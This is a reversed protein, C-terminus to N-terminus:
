KRTFFSDLSSQIGKRRSGILKEIGKNVRESDFGKEDVLFKVLESRNISDWSIRFEKTKPCQTSKLDSFCCLINNMSNYNKM